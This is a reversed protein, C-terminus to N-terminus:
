SWRRCRSRRRLPISYAALCFLGAGPRCRAGVRFHDGAPAAARYEAVNHANALVRRQRSVVPAKMQVLQRVESLKV